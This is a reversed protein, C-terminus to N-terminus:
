TCDNVKEWADAMKEIISIIEYDDTLLAREICVEKPTNFINYRVEWDDSLWADRRKQSVNTADIIVVNHGAFFLAKVMTLAIQHVWGEAEQVYRKGHLALRIADKNVIPQNMEKSWTTKGARPLGVNVILVKDTM